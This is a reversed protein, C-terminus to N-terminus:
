PTKVKEVGCELNAHFLAGRQDGFFFFLNGTLFSGCIVLIKAVSWRQPTCGRKFIM